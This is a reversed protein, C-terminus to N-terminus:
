TALLGRFGTLYTVLRPSVAQAPLADVPWPPRNPTFGPDASRRPWDAHIIAAKGVAVADAGADLARDADDRTWVGGAVLLAVDAPLAARIATTVAPAGPEFPPPGSADQLSLHLFDLGDEALWGALVTADALVLGRRSWTDVPSIRAGVVFDPRVAARVARVTDRLLRARGALDGGWADVRPNDEPALFQTFLYGNAGHIEVGTFGAREARVAAAVFDDIVRALDAATAGRVGDGDATTLRLGPALAAMRGGHYLQVIAAAGADRLSSALRTLGPLHADDAIGLQGEWAKGEASVFAACTNVLGFGGRARALLWRLEDDHLTGDPNSQRNTMPALALRNPLTAGCRLTLPADLRSAAPADHHDPM